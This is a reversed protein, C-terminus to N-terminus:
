INTFGIYGLFASCDTLVSILLTNPIKIETQAAKRVVPEAQLSDEILLISITQKMFM